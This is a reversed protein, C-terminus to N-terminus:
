SVDGNNHCFGIIGPRSKGELFATTMEITLNGCAETLQEDFNVEQLLDELSESSKETTKEESTQVPQVQKGVKENSACGTIFLLAFILILKRM